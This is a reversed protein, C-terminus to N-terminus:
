RRDELGFTSQEGETQKSAERGSGAGLRGASGWRGVKRLSWDQERFLYVTRGPFAKLVDALQAPLPRDPQPRFRGFLVPGSLDPDNVVFDMHRDAPDPEVLVLAPRETVEREVLERFAEYRLRPFAFEEIGARLRSTAWVPPLSVWNVAVAAALVLGWWVPMRTRGQRRWAAVARATAVALLLTWLLGTEFVYHWHLIGDYWYPFYVAHVGLLAGVLLWWGSSVGRLGVCVFVTTLLLPVVGVTWQWSALLRNRVNRVALSPTLNEAWRDYNELVRPGLRRQGRVVNNFGYVHRPTYTDTYLQYPTVLVRGTLAHDYYALFALGVLVPVVLCGARKWQRAWRPGRETAQADACGPTEGPGAEVRTKGSGAEATAERQEVVRAGALTRVLGVAVTAAFPLCYGFATLPRCLMAFSLGVGSALAPWCGGTRESRFFGYTFASLGVLTPHHSLLLNSFLAYGPALALLLGALLGVGNNALERGVAFVLVATLANALWHGWHPRNLAVFPALWAGVGPFYRSAFRGENLVHMQDFLHPTTPHSPFWLRGALFTKAQFLYSYEDHLAPPLQGFRFWGDPGVRAQAVHVSAWLAVLGVTLALGAATTRATRAPLTPQRPSDQLAVAVAKWFGLRSGGSAEGPGSRSAARRVDARRLRKKGTGPEGQGRPKRGSRERGGEERGTREGGTRAPGSAAGGAEAAGGRDARRRWFWPLALFLFFYPTTDVNWGTLAGVLGEPGLAQSVLRTLEVPLVVALGALLALLQALLFRRQEHADRPM